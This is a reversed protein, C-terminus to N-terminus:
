ISLSIHPSHLNARSCRESGSHSAARSRSRSSTSPAKLFVYESKRSDDLASNFARAGAVSLGTATDLLRVATFLTLSAVRFVNRINSDTSGRVNHTARWACISHVGRRGSWSGDRGYACLSAYVIGSRMGVVDQVGFGEKRKCGALVVIARGMLPCDQSSLFRPMSYRCSCMQM